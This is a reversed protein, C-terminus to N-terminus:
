VGGKRGKKLPKNKKPSAKETGEPTHRDMWAQKYEPTVGPKFSVKM